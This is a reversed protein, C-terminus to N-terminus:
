EPNLEGCPLRSCVSGLAAQDIVDRRGKEGSLIGDSGVHDGGLAHGMEHLVASQRQREACRANITVRDRAETTVGPAESGDPRLVHPALVVPIGTTSLEVRCGTAAAWRGAAWEVAPRLAEDPSFAVHCAPYIAREPPEELDPPSPAPSCAPALSSVVLLLTASLSPMMKVVPLRGGTKLKERSVGRHLVGWEACRGRAGWM